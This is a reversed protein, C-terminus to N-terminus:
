SLRGAAQLIGAVDKAMNQLRGNKLSNALSENFVDDASGAPGDSGTLPASNQFQNQYFSNTSQGIPSTM